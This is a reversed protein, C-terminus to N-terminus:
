SVVNIGEIVRIGDPTRIRGTLRHESEMSRLQVRPDNFGLLEWKKIIADSQPHIIELSEVECGADAMANTPHVGEPWQIVTPLAGELVLNGEEPITIRWELSARQMAHVKGLEPVAEACADVDNTRIAFSALRPGKEMLQRGTVSDMGFWRPVAPAAGQPDIAIVEFYLGAGLRLLRNHTGMRVHQGGNGPTVGLKDICWQVGEELSAAIVVLHDLSSRINGM